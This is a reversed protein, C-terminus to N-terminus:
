DFLTGWVVKAICVVLMWMYIWDSKNTGDGWIKCKECSTLKEVVIWEIWFRTATEEEGCFKTM